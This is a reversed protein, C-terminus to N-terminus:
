QAHPDLNGTDFSSKNSQDLYQQAINLRYSAQQSDSNEIPLVLDDNVSKPLLFSIRGKYPKETFRLADM